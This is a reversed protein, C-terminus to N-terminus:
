DVIQEKSLNNLIKDTISSIEMSYDTYGVLADDFAEIAFCLLERSIKKSIKDRPMHLSDDYYDLYLSKSRLDMFEKGKSMSLMHEVNDSGIISDLRNWIPFVPSAGINHKFIHNTLKDKNIPPHKVYIGVHTKAVEEVVTISLFVSTSFSGHVYMLYSDEILKVIHFVCKNFEDASKINFISGKEIVDLIKNLTDKQM